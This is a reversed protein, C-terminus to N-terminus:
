FFFQFLGSNFYLFHCSGAVVAVAVVAVVLSDAAVLVVEV